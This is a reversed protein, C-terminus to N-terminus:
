ARRLSRGPSTFLAQVDILTSFISSPFLNYREFKQLESELSGWSYLYNGDRFVNYVLDKIIDFCKSSLSPLFCTEILLMVSSTSSTSMVLLQVLAPVYGNIDLETYEVFHNEMKVVNCLYTLEEELTSSNIFYLTFQKNPVYPSLLQEYLREKEQNKM